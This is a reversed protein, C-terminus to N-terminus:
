FLERLYNCLSSPNSFLRFFSFFCMSGTPFIIWNRATVPVSNIRPLLSSFPPYGTGDEAVDGEVNSTRKDRYIRSQRRPIAPYFFRNSRDIM